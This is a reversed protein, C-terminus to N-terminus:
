RSTQQGEEGEERVREQPEAQEDQEECYDHAAQAEAAAM